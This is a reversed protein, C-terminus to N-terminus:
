ELTVSEQFDALTEVQVALAFLNELDANDTMTELHRTLKRYFSIPPDFRLTLIEVINERQKAIEGELRGETRANEGAQKKIRRLFPTNMLLEDEEILKEVMDMFEEEDILTTLITLLRGRAEPDAIQQIQEVAQPLDEEPEEIDTQGILSTLAPVGLALLEKSKVKWLHVVDYSWSLSMNGDPRTVQHQGTDKAGVGAGIYIVVSILNIRSTEALRAMYELERWKMPRRTSRGQFEIHLLSVQGTALTVEFVLDVAQDEPAPLEVNRAQVDQIEQKLLWPAFDDIFHTVLRKLPNDTQAM